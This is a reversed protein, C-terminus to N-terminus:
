VRGQPGPLSSWDLGLADCVQRVSHPDLKQHPGVLSLEATRGERHITLTGHGGGRGEHQTDFRCGQEILWKRFTADEM